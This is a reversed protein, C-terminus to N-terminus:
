HELASQLCNRTGKRILFHSRPVFQDVMLTITFSIM